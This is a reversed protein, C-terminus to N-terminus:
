STVVAGSSYSFWTGTAANFFVAIGTGAGGGESPKRGNSAFAWQGNAATAPLGAVTYVAPIPDVAVGARLAALIATLLQNTQQATTVLASLDVVPYPQVPSNPPFAM